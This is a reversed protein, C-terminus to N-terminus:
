CFAESCVIRPVDAKEIQCGGQELRASLHHHHYIDILKKLLTQGSVGNRRLLNLEKTVAATPPMRFAKEMENIRMKEDEDDTYSFLTRLERLVYRQGQRLSISHFQQAERHKVEEVFQDRVHMLRHNYDRPLAKGIPTERTSNIAELARPLDRTAIQGDSRVLFLQNYRGAQCFVYLGKRNESPKSSRIGDRLETIRKYEESDDKNLSRFFEEAENLDMFEEEKEELEAM